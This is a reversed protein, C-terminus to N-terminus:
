TDDFGGSVTLGNSHDVLAQQALAALLDQSNALSEDWKLEGDLEELLMSAVIDQQSDPLSELHQVVQHMLATM